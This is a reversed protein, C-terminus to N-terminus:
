ADKKPDRVLGRKLIETVFRDAEEVLTTAEDATIDPTPAYDVEMRWDSLRQWIKSFAPDMKKDRIFHRRFEIGVQKHSNLAVGLASFVAHLAYFCSYYATSVASELFNNKLHSHAEAISRLARKRYEAAAKLSKEM